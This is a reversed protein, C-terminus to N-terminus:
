TAHCINCAENLVLSNISWQWGEAQIRYTGSAVEQASVEMDYGTVDLIDCKVSEAAVDPSDFIGIIIADRTRRIETCLALYLTKNM